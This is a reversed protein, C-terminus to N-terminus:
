GDADAVSTPLEDSIVDKQPYKADFWSAGPWASVLLNAGAAVFEALDGSALFVGANGSDPVLAIDIELNGGAAALEAATLGVGRLAHLLASVASNFPDQLSGGQVEDLDFDGLVFVRWKAGVSTSEISGHAVAEPVQVDRPFSYRASILAHDTYELGNVLLTWEPKRAAINNDAFTNAM